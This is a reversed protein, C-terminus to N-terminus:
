EDIILKSPIALTFVSDGGQWFKITNFERATCQLPLSLPRKSHCAKCLKLTDSITVLQLLLTQQFGKVM